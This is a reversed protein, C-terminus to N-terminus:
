GRTVGTHIVQRGNEPRHALPKLDAQGRVRDCDLVVSRDAKPDGFNVASEDFKAVIQRVQAVEGQPSLSTIQFTQVAYVIAGFSCTIAIKLINVCAGQIFPLTQGPFTRLQKEPRYDLSM